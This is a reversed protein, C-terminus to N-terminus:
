VLITIFLWMRINFELIQYWVEAVEHLSSSWLRLISRIVQYTIDTPFQGSQKMDEFVGMARECEEKKRCAKVMVTFM